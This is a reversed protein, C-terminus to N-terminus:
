RVPAGARTPPPGRGGVGTGAGAVRGGAGRGAGRVQGFYPFLLVQPLAVSATADGLTGGTYKAVWKALYALLLEVQPRASPAPRTGPASLRIILCCVCVPPVPVLPPPPAPCRRQANPAGGLVAMRGLLLSRSTQLAQGGGHLAGVCGSLTRAQASADIRVGM